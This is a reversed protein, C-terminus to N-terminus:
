IGAAVFRALPTNAAEGVSLRIHIAPKRGEVEITYREFHPTRRQNRQAHQRNSLVEQRRAQAEVM